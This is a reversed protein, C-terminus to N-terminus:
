EFDAIVEVTSRIGPRSMGLVHSSGILTARREGTYISDTVLRADGVFFKVTPLKCVLPGIVNAYAERLSRLQRDRPLGGGGNVAMNLESVAQSAISRVARTGPEFAHEVFVPGVNPLCLKVTVSDHRVPTYPDAHGLGRVLDHKLTFRSSRACCFDFLPVWARDHPKNQQRIWVQLVAENGISQREEMAQKLLLAGQGEVGCRDVDLLTLSPLIRLVQTAQRLSVLPNGSVHFESACPFLRALTQLGDDSIASDCLSLKGVGVASCGLARSLRSTWNDTLGNSSIDLESCVLARELPPSASSTMSSFRPLHLVKVLLRLLSEGGLGCCIMHLSQLNFFQAASSVVSNASHAPLLHLQSYSLLIERVHAPDINMSGNSTRELHRALNVADSPSHVNFTCYDLAGCDLAPRM